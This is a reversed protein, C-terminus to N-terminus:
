TYDMLHDNSIIFYIVIKYRLIPSSFQDQPPSFYSFQQDGSNLHLNVHQSFQESLVHTLASFSHDRNKWFAM